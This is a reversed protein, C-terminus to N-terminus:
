KKFLNDAWTNLKQVWELRYLTAGYLRHIISRYEPRKQQIFHQIIDDVILILGIISIVLGVVPLAFLLVFGIVLLILGWYFHHIEFPTGTM